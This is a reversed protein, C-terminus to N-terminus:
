AADQRCNKRGDSCSSQSEHAGRLANGELIIRLIILSQRRKQPLLLWARLRMRLRMRRKSCKRAKMLLVQHLLLLLGRERRRRKPLLLGRGLRQPAGRRADVRVGLRARAALTRRHALHRGGLALAADRVGKKLGRHVLLDGDRASRSPRAPLLTYYRRTYYRHM